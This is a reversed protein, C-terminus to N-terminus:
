DKKMNQELTDIRTSFLEIKKMFKKIRGFYFHNEIMTQRPIAPIGGIVSRPAINGAIGSMGMAIVDDGIKVHDAVGTAGGLVVRNGMAVSGAVGVHGCLMCNEGIQVNHGVQVQNDIKTGNGITTAAITGRDISSNAGIEVDHGIIVNGLSAIRLLELNTNDEGVSGSAKADEVSGLKPTVFSFGDAGISSNFHIIVRDGIVVSAGIKVGPYLLANKGISAHPGVYIQPYLISNDGIIAAESIYSHAGISVNAGIKASPEIIATPHIGPAVSPANAFLNTLKSMALRPREVIISAKVIGPELLIDRSIIAAQVKMQLLIPLLSKDVALAVDHADKFDSPHVVRKIVLSGDGVLEGDLARAIEQMTYSKNAM